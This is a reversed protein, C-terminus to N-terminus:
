AATDARAREAARRASNHQRCELCRCRRRYWRFSGQGPPHLAGGLEVAQVAARRRDAATVTVSGEAVLVARDQSTTGAWYGPSGTAVAWLLCEGRRPCHRCLTAMVDPVLRQEKDPVWEMWGPFTSCRTGSGARFLSASAEALAASAEPDAPMGETDILRRTTPM